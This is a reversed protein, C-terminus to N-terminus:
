QYDRYTGSSPAEEQRGIGHAGCPSCHRALFSLVGSSQIHHITHPTYHITYLTHYITCSIYHINYELGVKTWIHQIDPSYSMIGLVQRFAYFLTEGIM